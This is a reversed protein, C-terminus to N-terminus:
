RRVIEPSPLSGLAPASLRSSCSACPAAMTADGAASQHHIIREQTPFFTTRPRRMLQLCTDRARHGHASGPRALVKQGSACCSVVCRADLILEQRPSWCALHIDLAAQPMGIVPDSSAALNRSVPM